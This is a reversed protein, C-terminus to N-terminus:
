KQIIFWLLRSVLEYFACITIEICLHRWELEKGASLPSYPCRNTGINRSDVMSSASVLDYTKMNLLPSSLVNLFVFWLSLCVCLKITYCLSSSFLLLRLTLSADNLQMRWIVFFVLWWCRLLSLPLSLYQSSLVRLLWTGNEEENRLSGFRHTSCVYLYRYSM